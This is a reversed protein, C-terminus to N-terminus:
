PCWGLGTGSTRGCIPSPTCVWDLRCCSYHYAGSERTRPIFWWTKPQTYLSDLRSHSSAGCLFSQPYVLSRRMDTCGSFAEMIKHASQILIPAVTYSLNRQKELLMSPAM